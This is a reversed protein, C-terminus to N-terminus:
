AHNEGETTQVPAQERPQSNAATTPTVAHTDDTMTPEPTTLPEHNDFGAKKFQQYASEVVNDIIEPTVWELGLQKAFDLAAQDAAKKRDSKSLTVMTGLKTVTDLAFQSLQNLQKDKIHTKLYPKVQKITVVILTALSALIGTSQLWNIVDTISQFINM